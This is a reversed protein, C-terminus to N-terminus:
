VELVLQDDDGDAPEPRPNTLQGLWAPKWWCAFLGWVTWHVYVDFFEGLPERCYFETPNEAFRLWLKDGLGSDVPRGDDDVYRAIYSQAPMGDLPGGVFVPCPPAPPIKSM